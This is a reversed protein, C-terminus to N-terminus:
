PLGIAVNDPELFSDGKRTKSVGRAAMPYRQSHLAVQQLYPMQLDRYIKGNDDISAIDYGQQKQTAAWKLLTIANNILEKKSSLGGLEQLEEIEDLLSQRIEIQFRMLKDKPRRGRLMQIEEAILNHAGLPTARHVSLGKNTPFRLKASKAYSMLLSLSHALFIRLSTPLWGKGSEIGSGFALTAVGIQM